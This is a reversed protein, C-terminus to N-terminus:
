ADGADAVVHDVTEEAGVVRHCEAEDDEVGGGNEGGVEEDIEAVAPDVRPDAKLLGVSGTSFSASTSGCPKAVPGDALRRVGVRSAQRRKQACLSASTESTNKRPTQTTAAMAGSM